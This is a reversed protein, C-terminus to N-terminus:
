TTSADADPGFLLPGGSPCPERLWPVVAFCPLSCKPPFLGCFLPCPFSGAGIQTETMTDESGSQWEAVGDDCARRGVSRTGSSRSERKM